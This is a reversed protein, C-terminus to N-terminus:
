CLNKGGLLQITLALSLRLMLFWLLLRSFTLWSSRYLSISYSLTAASLFISYGFFCLFVVPSLEARSLDKIEQEAPSLEELQIATPNLVADNPLPQQRQLYPLTSSSSPSAALAEQLAFHLDLDLDSDMAEAVALEILCDLEKASTLHPGHHLNPTSERIGQVPGTRVWMTPM